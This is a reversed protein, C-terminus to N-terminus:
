CLSAHALDKGTSSTSWAKSSMYFRAMQKAEEHTITNTVRCRPKLGNHSCSVEQKSCLSLQIPIHLETSNIYTFFYKTCLSDYGNDDDDDDDDDDDGDDSRLREVTQAGCSIRWGSEEVGRKERGPENRQEAEPRDSIDNEWRRKRRDRRRRGQM